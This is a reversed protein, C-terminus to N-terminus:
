DSFFPPSRFSSFGSFRLSPPFSMFLFPLTSFSLTQRIASFCLIEEGDKGYLGNFFNPLSIFTRFGSQIHPDILLARSSPHISPLDFTPGLKKSFIAFVPHPKNFIYFKLSRKKYSLLNLDKQFRTSTSSIPPFNLNVLFDIQFCSWDTSFVIEAKSVCKV